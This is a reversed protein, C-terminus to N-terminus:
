GMNKGGIEWCKKTLREGFFTKAMVDWFYKAVGGRFYKQWELEFGKQWGIHTAKRGWFLKVVRGSKVVGGRRLFLKAVGDRFYKEWGLLKKWRVGIFKQSGVGLIKKWGRYGFKRLKTNLRVESEHASQKTRAFFDFCSHMGTPHM